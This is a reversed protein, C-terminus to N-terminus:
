GQPDTAVSELLAALVATPNRVVTVKAGLDALARDRGEVGAALLREHAGVDFSRQLLCQFRARSRGRRQSMGVVKAGHADVVEGPGVGAFCLLRGAEREIPRGRHVRMAAAGPEDTVRLAALWAEGLWEFAAGVDDSWRPDDPSIVVDVWVTAAPDVLVLGGGSRRRAVEWRETAAAAVDVVASRQTSGLVAARRTPVMVHVSPAPWDEADLAHLEAASGRHEVVTWTM